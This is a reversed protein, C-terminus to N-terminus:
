KKGKAEREARRRAIEENRATEIVDLEEKISNIFPDPIFRAEYDQDSHEHVSLSVGEPLTKRLADIFVPLETTAVDAIQVNREYLNMNVTNVVKTSQPAYTHAAFSSCPTAWGESVSIGINEALNHVYSQYNELIDYDYGKIQVNIKDYTQPTLGASQM